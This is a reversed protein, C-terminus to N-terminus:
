FARANINVFVVFVVDVATAAAAAVTTARRFLIGRHAVAQTAM